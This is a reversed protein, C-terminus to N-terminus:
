HKVSISVTQKYAVKKKKKLDLDPLKLVSMRHLGTCGWLRSGPCKSVRGEGAVAEKKAEGKRSGSDRREKNREEM